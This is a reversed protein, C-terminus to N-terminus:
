TDSPTIAVYMLAIPPKGVKRSSAAHNMMASAHRTPAVTHSDWQVPTASIGPAIPGPVCSLKCRRLYHWSSTNCWTVHLQINLDRVNLELSWFGFEASNAFRQLCLRRRRTCYWGFAADQAHAPM